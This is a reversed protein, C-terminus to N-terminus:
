TKHRASLIHMDHETALDQRVQQSGWPHGLGGPGETM